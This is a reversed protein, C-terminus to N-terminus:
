YKLDEKVLNYKMGSKIYNQKLTNIVFAPVLSSTKLFIYFHIAGTTDKCDCSYSYGLSFLFVSSFLKIFGRANQIGIEGM